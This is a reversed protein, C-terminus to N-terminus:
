GKMVGLLETLSDTLLNYDDVLENYRAEGEAKMESTRTQLANVKGVIMEGVTSIARLRKGTAFQWAKFSAIEGVLTEIKGSLEGRQVLLMGINEVM